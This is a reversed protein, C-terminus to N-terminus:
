YPMLNLNPLDKMLKSRYKIVLQCIKSFLLKFVDSKSDAAALRKNNNSCFIRDKKLLLGVKQKVAGYSVEFSVCHRRPNGMKHLKSRRM